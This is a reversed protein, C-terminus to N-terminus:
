KIFNLEKISFVIEKNKYNFFGNFKNIKLNEFDKGYNKEIYDIILEAKIENFVVDNSKIGDFFSILYVFLGRIEIGTLGYALLKSVKTWNQYDKLSGLHKYEEKARIEVYEEEM